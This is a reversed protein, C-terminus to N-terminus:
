ALELDTRYRSNGAYKNKNPGLVNTLETLCNFLLKRSLQALVLNLSEASKAFVDKVRVGVLKKVTM